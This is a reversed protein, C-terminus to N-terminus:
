RNFQYFLKVNYLTLPVFLKGEALSTRRALISQSDGYVVFM